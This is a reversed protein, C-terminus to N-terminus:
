DWSHGNVYNQSWTINRPLVDNKKLISSENKINRNWYKHVWQLKIKEMYENNHENKNQDNETVTLQDPFYDLNACHGLFSKKSDLITM